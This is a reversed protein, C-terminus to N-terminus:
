TTRPKTSLSKRPPSHSYSYPHDICYILNRYSKCLFLLTSPSFSKLLSTPLFQTIKCGGFEKRVRKGLGTQVIKVKERRNRDLTEEFKRYSIEPRWMLKSTLFKTMPDMDNQSEKPVLSISGVSFLNQSSVPFWWFPVWFVNNQFLQCWFFWFNVVM